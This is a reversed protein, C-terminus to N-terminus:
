VSAQDEGCTCCTNDETEIVNGKCDSNTCDVRRVEFTRNCAICYLTTSDSTNPRLQALRMDDDEGWKPREVTCPYCLYRRQKKDFGLYQKVFSPSLSEIAIELERNMQYTSSDDEDPVLMLVPDNELYDRRIGPWSEGALLSACAELIVELIQTAAVAIRKDVTHFISNRLRRMQEFRQKFEDSLKSQAVTDHVRVLDQSDITRFDAFAVDGQPWDRPSAGILLFPSVDAIRAKLLQEIGQQVLALSKSLQSQAAATFSEVDSSATPDAFDKVTQLFGYAQEWGMHLFDKGSREFESPTPIDTIM